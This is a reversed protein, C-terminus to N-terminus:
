IGRVVRFGVRSSTIDSDVSFRWSSRAQFPAGAWFGGRAVRLRCGPNFWSAGDGPARRYNSHWCDSVWESVNGEMDYLGWPNRRFSGVPSPGWYGDGYGAFANNWHRGSPSVDNGGTYNGSGEPPSALNGWPYRGTQGARLAYEFEAESPLRYSRGTQESLWIAYAEADRVNIHLVPANPRAPNGAYDSQWDVGNRRVFNGSREDYVISNGRRTARSRRGSSEVFRRFDAVTIETTAMAFGREFRVQHRPREADSAGSDADPAGMLFEGYPIVVMQPGRSGDRLADTFVQSPRFVGYRPAAELKEQLQPVRADDALAISRLRELKARAPGLGSSSALDRLAGYYLLAVQKARLVEVRVAADAVTSADDDRVAAAMRLWRTAAAFDSGLSAQEAHAIMASEVAAMGQRARANDRDMALAERFRAIAGGDPERLHGERLAREGAQNRDLVAAKEEQRRFFSEAGADGRDYYRLVSAAKGAQVLATEDWDSRDLLENSRLLLQRYARDLGRRAQADDPEAELIALYQPIASESDEFLRGAGLARAASRRVEDMDERAFVVSPPHWTRKAQLPVATQIPEKTQTAAQLTLRERVVSVDRARTGDALSEPERSCAALWFVAVGIM